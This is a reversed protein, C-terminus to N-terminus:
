IHGVPKEGYCIFEILNRDPDQAYLSVGPASGCDRGGVRDVPGKVTPVGQQQLLATLAQLGGEWRFCMHNGGAMARPAELDTVFEGPHVMIMFHAATLTYVPSLGARWAGADPSTLGLGQYFRLLREGDHTLLAVHDLGAIPM